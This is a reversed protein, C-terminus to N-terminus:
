YETFKYERYISQVLQKKLTYVPNKRTIASKVDEIYNVGNISYVFDAIYKRDRSGKIGEVKKCIVFPVQLKLGEIVGRKELTKLEIFRSAEKQSDFKIGSIETKVNRYKNM